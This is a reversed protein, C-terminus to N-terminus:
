ETEGETPAEPPVECDEPLKEAGDHAAAGAGPPSLAQSGAPVGQGKDPLGRDAPGVCLSTCPRPFSGCMPVPTHGCPTLLGATASGLLSSSRPASTVTGPLRMQFASGMLHKLFILGFHPLQHFIVRMLQEGLFGPGQWGRRVLPCLLPYLSRQQTRDRPGPGM